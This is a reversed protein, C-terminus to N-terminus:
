KFQTGQPGEDFWFVLRDAKACKDREWVYEWISFVGIVMSKPCILFIEIRPM